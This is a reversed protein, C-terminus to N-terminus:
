ANDDSTAGYREIGQCSSDLYGKNPPAGRMM